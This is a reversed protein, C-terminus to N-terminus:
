GKALAAAVLQSMIALNESQSEKPTAWAYWYDKLTAESMGEGFVTFWSYGLGDLFGSFDALRYGNMQPAESGNEFFVVPRERRLCNAAGRLAFYEGGELDLKIFDCRGTQEGVLKDITTAPVALPELFLTDKNAQLIPNIGSRGPHTQSKSFFVNAKHPDDQLAGFIAEIKAASPSNSVRNVLKALTEDNAEVAIVRAVNPLAAMQFTHHGVHAGGDVIVGANWSRSLSSYLQTLVDEIALGSAQGMVRLKRKAAQDFMLVGPFSLEAAMCQRLDPDTALRSALQALPEALM